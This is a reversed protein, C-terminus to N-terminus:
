AGHRRVWNPSCCHECPELEGPRVSNWAVAIREHVDQGRHAAYRQGKDLWTCHPDNHYARGGDTRYGHRLVNPPPPKCLACWASRLDHVCEVQGMAERALAHARDLDPHAETRRWRIEHPATAAALRTRLEAHGARAHAFDTRVTVTCPRVLTSLGEVSATLVMRHASPSAEGGSLEKTREGSRLVAGWGAAVGDSVGAVALEVAAPTM